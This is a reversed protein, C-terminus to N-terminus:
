FFSGEIRGVILYLLVREKREYLPLSTWDIYFYFVYIIGWLEDM